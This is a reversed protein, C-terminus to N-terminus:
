KVAVLVPMVGGSQATNYAGFSNYSTSFQWWKSKEVNKIRYTGDSLPDVYWYQGSTPAASINFSNYTGSM